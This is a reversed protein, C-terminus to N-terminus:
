MEVHSLHLFVLFTLLGVVVNKVDNGWHLSGLWLSHMSRNPGNFIVEDPFLQNVSAIELYASNTAIGSLLATVTAEAIKELHSQLCPSGNSNSDSLPVSNQLWIM